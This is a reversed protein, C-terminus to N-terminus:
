HRFITRWNFFGTNFSPVLSTELVTESTSTSVTNQGIPWFIFHHSFCHIFYLLQFYPSCNTVTTHTFFFRNAVAAIGECYNSYYIPFNYQQGPSSSSSLFFELCEIIQHTSNTQKNQPFVIWLWVPCDILPPPPPPFICTVVLVLWM